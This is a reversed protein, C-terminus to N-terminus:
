HFFNATIKRKCYLGLGFLILGIWSTPEPVERLNVSVPEDTTISVGGQSIVGTNAFLVNAYSSTGDTSIIRTMDPNDPVYELTDLNDLNHIFDEFTSNGQFSMEYASVENNMFSIINDGNKDEGSFIGTVEGGGPIWELQSFEFTLANAPRNGIAIALTLGTTGLISLSQVLRKM